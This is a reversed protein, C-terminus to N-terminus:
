KFNVHILQSSSLKGHILFLIWVNVGFVEHKTKDVEGGNKLVGAVKGQTGGV